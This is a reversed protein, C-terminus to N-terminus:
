ASDQHTLHQGVQLEYTPVCDDESLWVKRGGHVKVRVRGYLRYASPIVVGSRGDPLTIPTGFALAM